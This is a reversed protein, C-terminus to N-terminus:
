LIAKGEETNTDDGLLHKLDQVKWNSIWEIATKLISDEQQVTVWDTVHLNVCTHVARALVATEWVQKHIEEDAGAVVPNHADARETMGVTVGDLISKVTEADLKSTVQSLADVTGNDWGKQYEISFTFRVLSEVWQHQTADLTPTTM